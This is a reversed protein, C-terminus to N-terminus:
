TILVDKTGTVGLGRARCMEKLEPVTKKRCDDMTFTGKM